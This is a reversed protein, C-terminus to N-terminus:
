KLRGLCFTLNFKDCGAPASPLKWHTAPWGNPVRMLTWDGPAYLWGLTYHSYTPASGDQPMCVLLIPEGIPPPESIPRWDDAMM